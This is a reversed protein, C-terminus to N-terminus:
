WILLSFGGPAYRLSFNEYRNINCWDKVMTDAAVKIWSTKRYFNLFQFAMLLGVHRPIMTLIGHGGIVMASVDNTTQEISQYYYRFRSLDLV